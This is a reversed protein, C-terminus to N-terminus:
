PGPATVSGLQIATMQQFSANATGSTSRQCSMRVHEDSAGTVQVATHLVLTDSGNGDALSGDVRDLLSGTGSQTFVCTVGTVGATANTLVVKATVIYSGVPLALSAVQSFVAGIPPLSSTPIGVQATFGAAVGNTGAPGQPGM